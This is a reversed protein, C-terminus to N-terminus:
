KSIKLIVDNPIHFFFASTLSSVPVGTIAIQHMSDNVCKLVVLMCDLAQQLGTSMSGCEGYRLLDQLPRYFVTKANTYWHSYTGLAYLKNERPHEDRPTTLM